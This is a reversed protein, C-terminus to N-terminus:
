VSSAKAMEGRIYPVYFLLSALLTLVDAALQANVLGSFGFFRPMFQIAPILFVGQRLISFLLAAKAHGVSQFVVSINNSISMFISAYSLSRIALIGYEIVRQEDTFIMMIQRAFVVMIVGVLLSARFSKVFGHKQASFVREMNKAGYNYGVVPQLGQGLGFIIFGQFSTVKIAIGMASLLYDGGLARAGENLLGMSVSFLMQRFFTPLGIKLIESYLERSPKFYKLKIELVTKKRLYFYYLIAFSIGQSLITAIAAGEIGMDFTFIFIPDLAINILSGLGMGTMSYKASGEARLSNNLVMSPIVFITGLVICNAYDVSLAVMEGEAGFMRVLEEMFLFCGGIYLVAVGIGTILSTTVVSDANERRNEGLLRSIYSGGGIGFSLGIASAAMMIPFVVQVAAAGKYNWWSVFITDAINYAAMVMFGIIAPISLKSIAKGTDMDRLIKIRKDEM